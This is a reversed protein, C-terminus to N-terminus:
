AASGGAGVAALLAGPAAALRRYDEPLGIDVFLGQSVFGYAGKGIWRPLVDHEFSTVGDPIQAIVDREVLYVGANILGAGSHSKEGFAQIEGSRSDARVAGFRSADNVGTLAITLRANRESHFRRMAALDFTTFSDGNLALLPFETALAAGLKLAGGTGALQDEVSYAVTLGVEDGAGFHTRITEWRHGVCLVARRIGERALYRLLYELFPRGAIPVM